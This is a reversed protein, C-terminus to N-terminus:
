ALLDGASAPRLLAVPQDQGRARDLAAAVCGELEQPSFPKTVYDDVGLEFGRSVYTSQALATLLIVPLALTEPDRRLEATVGYGDLGPMTVDLLVLDPRRSRIGALAAVGDRALVTEYGCRTLRLRVLELIDEDDDAILVLPRDRGPANM